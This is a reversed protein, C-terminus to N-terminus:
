NQTKTILTHQSKNIKVEVEKIDSKKTYLGFPILINKKKTKSFQIQKYKSSDHM